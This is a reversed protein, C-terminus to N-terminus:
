TTDRATICSRVDFQGRCSQLETKGPARDRAPAVTEDRGVEAFNSIDCILRDCPGIGSSTPLQGATSSVKMGMESQRSISRYAILKHISWTGGASM